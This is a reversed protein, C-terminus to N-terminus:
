WAKTMAAGPYYWQLISQHDDGRRALTEAGYQCLGVGHGFGRGECRITAGSFNAAVHSSLFSKEPRSLGGGTFNAARRLTEADLEVTTGHIDTLAYRTPRQHENLASPTITRLTALQALDERGRQAGFLNVRATFQTVTRTATWTAVPSSVCVDEGDRGHLPALDNIPNPGIADVARAALGGCCSSFYGSVLSGDYSLVMGRTARVAEVATENTAGGAYVQSSATNSVDFSRRSAFYLHESCAFSRAAVAQAAYTEGRWHSFLEAAIVGPLYAEMAVYNIVDFDRPGRETQALLRMSGPYPAGDCEITNDRSDNADTVDGDDHPDALASIELDGLGDLGVRVGRHDRVSWSESGIRLSTPGQIAAASAPEDVLAIRLWQNRGGINIAPGDGTSRRIRVRM